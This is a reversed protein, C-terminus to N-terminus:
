QSGFRRAAADLVFAIGLFLLGLNTIIQQWLTSLPWAGGTLDAGTVPILARPSGDPAVATALSGGVAPVQIIASGGSGSPQDLLTVPPTLVTNPDTPTPTSTRLVDPPTGPTPTADTDDDPTGPTSTNRPTSTPVSLACSHCNSMLEGLMQGNRSISMTYGGPATQTIIVTEGGGVTTTGNKGCDEDRYQINECEGCHITWDFVVAESSPNTVQWILGNAGCMWQFYLGVILPTTTVTPTYTATHTPTVTSTETPTPTLTETPTSTITPTPTPTSAAGCDLHTNWYYDLGAPAANVAEGTDTYLLAAGWHVEVITDGPRVGPWEVSVDVTDGDQVWYEQYNHPTALDPPNVVYSDTQLLATVGAPLSVTVTVTLTTPEFICIGRDEEGFSVSGIVDRAIPPTPRPQECSAEQSTSVPLGSEDLWTITMTQTGFGTNIQTPATDSGSQEGSEWTFEVPGANPNEVTWLIGDPTCEASLILESLAMIALESSPQTGGAVLTETSTTEPTPTQDGGPEVTETPDNEGPEITAEQEGEQPEETIEKPEEEEGPPQTEEEAPPQTEEEAPPQEGTQNDTQESQPAPTDDATQARAPQSVFSLLLGMLLLSVGLTYAVKTLKRMINWRQHNM